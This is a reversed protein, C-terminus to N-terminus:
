TDEEAVDQDPACPCALAAALRSFASPVSSRVGSFADFLRFTREVYKAARYMYDVDIDLQPDAPVRHLGHLPNSCPALNYKAVHQWMGHAAASFPAYAFRYLDFNGTEEAMKRVDLGSWNGINVETLFPLRQASLWREMQQILPHGDADKHEAEIRARHHELLLKEQGLGYQIFRRSRDVPDKSIWAFTIFTDIMARLVLPAVHGNWTAPAQALQTALSVQRAVLGGVVEHVERRSMDITWSGWRADLEERAMRVYEDLLPGVDMVKMAGVVEGDVPSSADNFLNCSELQLGRTWFRSPWNSGANTTSAGVMMNLTARIAAAVRRSLETSPYAEVAPFDALASASSVVLRDTVFAIYIANTQAFTAARNRRDILARIAEKIHALDASADGVGSADAPELVGLPCDPYRCLLPGLAALLDELLGVSQMKARLEAAGEVGLASYATSLGFWTNPPPKAIKEAAKAVALGLEAGRVEGHRANLLGLWLIEPLIQDLWKVEGVPAFRLFPPVLRRGIRVHDALVPRRAEAAPQARIADRRSM